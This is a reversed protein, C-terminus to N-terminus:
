RADAGGHLQKTMDQEKQHRSFASTFLRTMFNEHSGVRKMVAYVRVNKIRKNIRVAYKM